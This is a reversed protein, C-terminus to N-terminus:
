TERASGARHLLLILLHILLEQSTVMWGDKPGL